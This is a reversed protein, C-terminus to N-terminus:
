MHVAKEWMDLNALIIQNIQNKSFNLFFHKNM